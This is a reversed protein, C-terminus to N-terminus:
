RRRSRPLAPRAEFVTAPEDGNGLKVKRLAAASKLNWEITERVDKRQSEELFAGFRQEVLGTLADVAPDAVVPAAPVPAPVPSPAAAPTQAFAAPVLPAAGLVALFRRRGSM